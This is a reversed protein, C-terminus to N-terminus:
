FFFFGEFSRVVLAIEPLVVGEPRLSGSVCCVTTSLAADLADGVVLPNITPALDGLEVFSPQPFSSFTEGLLGFIKGKQGEHRPRKSSERVKAKGKDAM